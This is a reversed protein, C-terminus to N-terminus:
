RPEGSPAHPPPSPLSSPAVLTVEAVFDSMTDGYAERDAAETQAAEWARMMGGILADMAVVSLILVNAVMAVVLRLVDFVEFGVNASVVAAVLFLAGALNLVVAAIRTKKVAAIVEGVTSPRTMGRAARWLTVPAAIFCLMALIVLPSGSLQYPLQLIVYLLLMYFPAALVVLWGLGRAQPFLVKAGVAARLLGPVLALLKPALHLTQLLAGFFGYIPAIQPNGGGLARHPFLALAFPTLFAVLWMVLLTRRSRGWDDWRRFASYVGFAFAINVCVALFEFGGALGAAESDYPLGGFDPADLWIITRIADVLLSPVLACFGLFLMSRRWLLLRGFHGDSGGPLADVVAVEDPLVTGPTLDIRAARRVHDGAGSFFGTPRKGGGPERAAPEPEAQAGGGGTAEDGTPETM